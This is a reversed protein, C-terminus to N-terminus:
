TRPPCTAVISARGRVTRAKTMAVTKGLETATITAAFATLGSGLSVLDYHETM